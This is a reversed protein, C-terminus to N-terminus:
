LLLLLLYFGLFVSFFHLFLHAFVRFLFVLGLCLLFSLGLLRCVRWCGCRRDSHEAASFPLSAFFERTHRAYTKAGEALKEARM